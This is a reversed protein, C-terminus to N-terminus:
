TIFATVSRKAVCVPPAKGASRPLHHGRAKLGPSGPRARPTRYACNSPSQGKTWGGVFKQPFAQRFKGKLLSLLHSNRRAKKIMLTPRSIWSSSCRRHEVWLSALACQDIAAHLAEFRRAETRDGVSLKGSRRSAIKTRKHLDQVTAQLDPAIRVFYSREVTM